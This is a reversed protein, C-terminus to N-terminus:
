QGPYAKAGPTLNGSALRIAIQKDIEGALELDTGGAKGRAQVTVRTVSKDLEEVKVWITRENVSAQLVSKLLDETYLTGNARLVDKAATWIERAPREYRSEVKDKVFPVAVRQRGDLTSVCGVSFLWAAVLIGAVIWKAKM